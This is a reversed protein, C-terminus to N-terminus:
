GPPPLMRFVLSVEDKSAAVVCAKLDALSRAVTEALMRGDDRRRPARTDAQVHKVFKDFSDLLRKSDFELLM